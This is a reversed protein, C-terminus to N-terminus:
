IVTNDMRFNYNDYRLLVQVFLAVSVFYIITTALNAKSKELWDYRYKYISIIILPNHSVIQLKMINLHVKQKQVLFHAKTAVGNYFSDSRSTQYSWHVVFHVIIISDLRMRFVDYANCLVSIIGVRVKHIYFMPYQGVNYVNAVYIYSQM